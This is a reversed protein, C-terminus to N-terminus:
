KEQPPPVKFEIKALQDPAKGIKRLVAALAPRLPNQRVSKGNPNRRAGPGQIHSGQRAV